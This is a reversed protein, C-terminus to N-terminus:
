PSLKSYIEVTKKKIKLPCLHLVNYHMVVYWFVNETSIKCEKKKTNASNSIFSYIKNNHADSIVLLISM